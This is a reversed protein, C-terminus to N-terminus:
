AFIETWVADFIRMLLERKRAFLYQALALTILSAAWFNLFVHQCSMKTEVLRVIPSNFHISNFHIMMIETCSLHLFYDEFDKGHQHCGWDQIAPRSAELGSCLINQLFDCSQKKQKQSLDLLPIHALGGISFFHWFIIKNFIMNRPGKKVCFLTGKRESM